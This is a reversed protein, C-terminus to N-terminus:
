KMFQEESHIALTVIEYWGWVLWLHDTNQIRVIIYTQPRLKHVRRWIYMHYSAGYQLSHSCIPVYVNNIM